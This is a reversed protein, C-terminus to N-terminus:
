KENYSCDDIIIIEALYKRNTKKVVSLITNFLNVQTENFYTIIVSAKTGEHINYDSGSCKKHSGDFGSWVSDRPNVDKEGKSLLNEIYSTIHKSNFDTQEVVFFSITNEISC